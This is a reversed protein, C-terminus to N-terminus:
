RTRKIMGGEPSLFFFQNIFSKHEAGGSFCWRTQPIGEKGGEPSFGHHTYHVEEGVRRFSFRLIRELFVRFTWNKSGIAYHLSDSKPMRGITASSSLSSKITKSQRQTTSLALMSFSKKEVGGSFNSHIHLGKNEGGSFIWAKNPPSRRGGEPFSFTQFSKHVGRRLLICLTKTFSKNVAGGSFFLIQFSSLRGGRRFIGSHTHLVQEGVRRLPERGDYTRNNSYQGALNSPPLQVTSQWFSQDCRNLSDSLCSAFFTFSHSAGPRSATCTM